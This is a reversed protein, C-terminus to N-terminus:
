KPRFIDLCSWHLGFRTHVANILSEMEFIKWVFFVSIEPFLFFHWISYLCFSFTGIKGINGQNKVSNWRIECKKGSHYSNKTQYRTWKQESWVFQSFLTLKLLFFYSWTWHKQVFYKCSCNIPRLIHGFRKAAEQEWKKFYFNTYKKIRERRKKVHQVRAQFTRTM